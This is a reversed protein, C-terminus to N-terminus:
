HVGGDGFLRTHTCPLPRPGEAAAVVDHAAVHDVAAAAIDVVAVPSSRIIFPVTRSSVPSTAHTFYDAPHPTRVLCFLVFLAFLALAAAMSPPSRFLFRNFTFIDSFGSFM